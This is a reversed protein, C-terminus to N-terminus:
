LLWVLESIHLFSMHGGHLYDQFNHLRPSQDMVTTGKREPKGEATPPKHSQVLKCFPSSEVARSTNDSPSRSRLKDVLLLGIM